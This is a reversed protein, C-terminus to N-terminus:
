DVYRYVNFRKRGDFASGWGKVGKTVGEELTGVPIGDINAKTVLLNGESDCSLLVSRQGALKNLFSFISDGEGATVRQFAAGTDAEFITKIGLPDVLKTILDELTIATFEFPPKLKSDFIDATPTFGILRAVEGGELSTEVKYILGKALRENGLSAVAPTYSYPTILRDLEVDVGPVWPISGRFENVVTDLNRFIVGVDPLFERGAIEIYLQDQDRGGNQAPPLQREPLIPIFLVEGPQILEPDGSQIRTQNADWIRTWLGFSGYVRAAIGSLTDGTVVTYNKGAVPKM